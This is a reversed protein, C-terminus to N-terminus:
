LADINVLKLLIKPHKALFAGAFSDGAGISDIEKEVQFAPIHM